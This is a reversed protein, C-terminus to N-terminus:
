IEDVKGLLAGLGVSRVLSHWGGEQIGDCLQGFSTGLVVGIRTEADKTSVQVLCQGWGWDSAWCWDMDWFGRGFEAAFM